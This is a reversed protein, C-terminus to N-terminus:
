CRSVDVENGAGERPRGLGREWSQRVSRVRTLGTAHLTFLMATVTNRGTRVASHAEGAARRPSQTQRVALPPRVGM